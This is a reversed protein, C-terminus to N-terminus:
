EKSANEIVSQIFSAKGITYGVRDNRFQRALERKLTDYAKM